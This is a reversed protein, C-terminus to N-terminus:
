SDLTVTFGQARLAAITEDRHRPGRTEVTVTIEVEGVDLRVGERHHEVSLVNAGEAALVTSLRALQGPRDPVRVTMRLYRGAASLGYDILKGLLLPDVNGGSLVLVVPGDSRVAGSLLAALTLAGSPEVVAKAREALLVVAEGTTPDDVAVLEDVFRQVHALTLESPSKLAVGDAITHVSDLPAVRGAALSAAMSAAGTPEVGVIRGRHGRQRLAAAVGSILGGGGVPVIVTAEPSIQEALEAGLTAQGAIILRDDFPPVFVASPDAAAVARAFVIADDVTEGAFRVEAGYGETAQVKPLPAAEPMYIIARLASLEAALAVGQAHNGASAAIVTTGADLRSIRNYAGRIKFSGTRQLYECKLWVDAGSLRSLAHSRRLPTPEAVGAIRAAADDIESRTVLEVADVGDEKAM